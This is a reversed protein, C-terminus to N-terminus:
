GARVTLETGGANGGGCRQGVDYKGPKAHPAIVAYGHLEGGQQSTIKATGGNGTYPGDHGTPKFATSGVYNLGDGACSVSLKVVQGPAYSAHDLHLSPVPAAGASAVGFTGSALGAISMAALARSIRRM